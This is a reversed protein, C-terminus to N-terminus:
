WFTKTGSIASYSASLLKGTYIRHCESSFELRQFSRKKSKQFVNQSPLQSMAIQKRLACHSNMLHKELLVVSKGVSVQTTVTQSMCTFIRGVIVVVFGLPHRKRHAIWECFVFGTLSIIVIGTSVHQEPIIHPMGWADEVSFSDKM